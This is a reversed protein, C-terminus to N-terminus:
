GIGGASAGTTSASSLGRYLRNLALVQTDLADLAGDNVLVDDAIALRQQRTAQAALMRQALAADIGDRQQLRALQVAAAVDVVLIRDLWPYASRGGGEALLPISAIAYATSAKQCTDALAARVRPHVIMELTRKAAADTFVRQRMAARDLSGDAALISRGFAAAVEALGASGVAVAERAAIDADAVFVDLARFRAEVTSKGSAVGGTLGIIYESM